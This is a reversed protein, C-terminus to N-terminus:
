AGAQGRISVFFVFTREITELWPHDRILVSEQDILIGGKAVRIPHEL